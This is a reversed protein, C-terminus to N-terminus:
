KAQSDDMGKESTAVAAGFRLSAARFAHSVRRLAAINTWICERYNKKRGNMTMIPKFPLWNALENECVIVHGPRSRCWAALERYDFSKHNKPNYHKGGHQYPPDVFWTAEIDPLNRYDGCTIRWSRIRELNRIFRLKMKQIERGKEAWETCIYRRGTSYPNVAYGMLLIEPKTLNFDRIDEGAKLEPLREIDERNATKWQADVCLMRISDMITRLTAAFYM